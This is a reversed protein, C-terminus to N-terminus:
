NTEKGDEEVSEDPTDERPPLKAQEKLSAEAQQLQEVSLKPHKEIHEWVQQVSGAYDYACKVHVFGAANAMGDEIFVLALRLDGKEILERCQKCRARGSPAPELKAFRRLRRHQTSHRAYDVLAEEDEIQENPAEVADLFAEPRRVAGCSLHYWHVADGEGFPNPVAEGLRLTGKTIPQKCARCKARGSTAREVVHGMEPSRYLIKSPGYQMRM